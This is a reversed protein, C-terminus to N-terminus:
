SVTSLLLNFYFDLGTANYFYSKYPLQDGDMLENMIKYASAYDGAKIFSKAKDQVERYPWLFCRTVKGRRPTVRSWTSHWVEFNWLLAQRFHEAENAGILGVFQLFQDYDMMNIPDTWGDGIIMGSLKMKAIDKNAHITYATAPVYKGAYSEGSVYFENDAYESFLTFFQQLAEFLDRGVEEETTVYGADTGTFSFGTGVPNDIYLMNFDRSWTVDRLATTQMRSSIRTISPSDEMSQERFYLVHFVSINAITRSPNRYWIKRSESLALKLSFASCRHHM